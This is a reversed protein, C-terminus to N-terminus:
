WILEMIPSSVDLANYFYIIFNLTWAVIAFYPPPRKKRVQDASHNSQITKESKEFISIDLQRALSTLSVRDPTYLNSSTRYIYIYIYPPVYAM